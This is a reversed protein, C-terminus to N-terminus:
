LGNCDLREFAKLGRAAEFMLPGVERLSSPSATLPLIHGYFQESQFALNVAMYENVDGADLLRTIGLIADRTLSLLVWNKVVMKSSISEPILLITTRFPEHTVGVFSSFKM